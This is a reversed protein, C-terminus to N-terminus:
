GKARVGKSGARQGQSKARPEQGKGRRETSTAGHEGSGAGPGQSKARRRESKERQVKSKAGQENSGAGPERSRAGQERSRAGQEASRLLAYLTKGMVTLDFLLSSRQIYTKALQIKDPLIRSIYEEEPNEVQGLLTAEHRYKLSALDTLGPRVRLIEEYDKPFLAVYRPAEPRPGVFSMEGSAVNIFQPLEDLKFRRLWYGLPTIRSDHESTIAAGHKEANVMMSRFKWVRFPKGKLGIREQRFFIPGGDSVKIAAAIVVFVPALFCLALVSGCLDFLRKSCNM